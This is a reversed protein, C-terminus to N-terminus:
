LLWKKKVKPYLLKDLIDKDKQLCKKIAEITKKKKGGPEAIYAKKNFREEYMKCYKEFEIDVESGVIDVEKDIEKNLFDIIINESKNNEM